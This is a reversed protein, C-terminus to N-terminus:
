VKVAPVYEPWHWTLPACTEDHRCAMDWLTSGEDMMLFAFLAITEGDGPDIVIAPRHAGSDAVYHVIRGVSPVPKDTAM